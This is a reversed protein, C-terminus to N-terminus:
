TWRASIRSAAPAPGCSATAPSRRLAREAPAAPGFIVLADQAPLLGGAVVSQNM